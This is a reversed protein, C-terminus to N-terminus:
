APIRQLGEGAIYVDGTAPDVAISNPQRVTPYRHVERAIGTSLDYGVVENTETLTVWAIERTDDYAVAYPASGTPIRQRMMLPDPGFVTLERTRPDTVLLRGWHDTALLAAGQGTRLALGHTESEINIEMLVSQRRDLAILSDDVAALADVSALGSIRKTVEGQDLIAVVGEALGAAIRGDPLVAASQVEGEIDLTEWTGDAVNIRVVRGPSVALIEGPPGPFIATVDTVRATGAVVEGDTLTVLVNNQRDFLLQTPPRDISTVSGAPTQSTAPSVVPTAPEVTQLAERQSEESCASVLSVAIAVVVLIRKM